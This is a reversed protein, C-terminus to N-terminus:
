CVKEVIEDQNNKVMNFNLANFKYYITIEKDESLEIRDVLSVLMERTVEKQKVFDSVIKYIDIGDTEKEEDEKLETLRQNLVMKNELTRHYIRSFDEDSLIGSCKDDYLKDVKNNLDKLKKEVSAIENKLMNKRCLLNNKTNNAINVYKNEELFNKCKEKITEIIIDTVKELNNNHSTCLKLHTATAYTNCRLYFIIKGNRQKAPLVSLKKGCEKCQIIGKLLWDYKKKRVGTRSKIQEQVINFTAEDIIPEHMGKKIIWDEHPVLLIKKSKYSVKRLTGNRVYGLYTENKLIKIVTNRNWGRKIESQNRTHVNGVVESPLATKRESLKIAIDSPTMGTKAWEFMEQIIPAIEEDIIYHNKDLPDKKYGYTAYTTMVKGENARVKKGNRVKKSTDRLFWENFFAKFKVMEESTEIHGTDIGDTIAIFRVGKEIFYEELYKDIGVSTRAFRSLDKVIVMNIKGAEIDAIMRKFGPREFNAGSYGDDTYTDYVRINNEICFNKLFLKQNSISGSEREDEATEVVAGNSVEINENSLRPYLGAIYREPNSITIM